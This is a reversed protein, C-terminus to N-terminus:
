LPRNDHLFLRGPQRGEARSEDPLLGDRLQVPGNPGTKQPDHLEDLNYLTSAKFNHRLGLTHGIEHMTVEKLGQEIMKEREAPSSTRASLVAAGFALERSLGHFLECGALHDAHQHGHLLQEAKYSTLDLPGGTLAAVSAPTFTEYEEKWFRLFDADFIVDSDLIQGTTQNVRSPGMAFGAGSTIWRFTNYNIDEPDWDANDPQQRVEIANVFGAKEFAKNWELIGDRIPKRYVFPITKELWFIIPKVPPSLEASADAKKLDWRNIYRVFRDDAGKRSYDKVVTLFYGIRDDAM